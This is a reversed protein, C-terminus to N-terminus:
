RDQIDRKNKDKNEERALTLLKSRNKRHKEQKTVSFLPTRNKPREGNNQGCISLSGEEPNGRPNTCRTSDRAGFPAPLFLAEQKEERLTGRVGDDLALATHPL